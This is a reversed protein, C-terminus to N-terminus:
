SAFVILFIKEIAIIYNYAFSAKHYSNLRYSVYSLAVFQKFKLM